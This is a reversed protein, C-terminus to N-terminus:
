SEYFILICTAILQINQVAKTIPWQYSPGTPLAEKVAVYQLFIDRTGSDQSLSTHWTLPDDGAKPVEESFYSNWAVVASKLVDERVPRLQEAVDLDGLSKGFDTQGVTPWFQRFNTSEFGFKL